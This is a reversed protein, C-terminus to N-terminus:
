DFQPKHQVWNFKLFRNLSPTLDTTYTRSIGGGVSTGLSINVARTGFTTPLGTTANASTNASGGFIYSGSVETGHGLAQGFVDTNRSGDTNTGYASLINLQFNFGYSEKALGTLATGFLKAQGTGFNQLLSLTYGTTGYTYGVSMGYAYGGFMKAEADRLRYRAAEANRKAIANPHNIIVEEIHQMKGSEIAKGGGSASDDYIYGNAAYHMYGMTNSEFAYKAGEIGNDKFFQTANDRNLSKDYLYQGDNTYYWDRGDPDFILIPNNGVYNYPSNSSFKEALQDIGNWRAIDPMYMRWGYDYMGTEQLEKGNYKYNTYSGVGFHADEESNRVFSMGFPYYDNSDTVIPNQNGEDKYSLRM